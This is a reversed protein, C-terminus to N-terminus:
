ELKDSSSTSDSLLELGEFNIKVLMIQRHPLLDIDNEQFDSPIGPFIM